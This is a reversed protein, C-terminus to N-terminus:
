IWYETGRRSNSYKVVAVAVVVVVVVAVPGAGAVAAVAASGTSCVRRTRRSGYTDHLGSMEPAKHLTGSLSMEFDGDANVRLM